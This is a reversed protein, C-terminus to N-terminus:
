SMISPPQRKTAENLPDCNTAESNIEYLRGMTLVCAMPMVISGGLM